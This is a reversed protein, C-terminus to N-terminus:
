GDEVLAAVRRSREPAIKLRDFVRGVSRQTERPMHRTLWESAGGHPAEEDLSQAVRTPGANYAALALALRGRPHEAAAGFRQWQRHLYTAGLLLNHRPDRLADATPQKDRLDPRLRRLAARGGTAPVVQMLGIAGQSSVATPNCASEVAMVARLLQENIPIHRVVAQLDDDFRRNCPTIPSAGQTLTKEPESPQAQKTKIVPEHAIRSAGTRDDFAVEPDLSYAAPLDDPATKTQSGTSPLSPGSFAAFAYLSVLATATVAVAIGSSGEDPDGRRDM